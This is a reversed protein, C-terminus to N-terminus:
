EVRMNFRKVQLKIINEIETELTNVTEKAQKAREAAIYADRKANLEVLQNQAATRQTQKERVIVKIEQRSKNKLSDPLTKMDVKDIFTSDRDVADVLDWSANNYLKRDSKVKTRKAMAEAKYTTNLQDVMAQKQQSAEGVSGYSMYTYNLTSNMSFLVSDYPTIITPLSANHDINSYSGNGCEGALNWNERIGAQKDGCYITNVIVGKRKAERCAETWAVQGQLFDENGAIFIVKYNNSATDWGLENLSSMIVHGCYEDGGDTQLSFLEKSLQDLDSTFASIQKIYGTTQLNSPRGYEYLAIEILPNGQECKVKGMVSVMNWLQEKAQDILGNMSGSVDLLIAAQIKQNKVPAEHQPVKKDPLTFDVMALALFLSFVTAAPKLTPKM